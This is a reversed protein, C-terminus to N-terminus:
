CRVTATEAKVIIGQLTKFWGELLYSWICGIKTLRNKNFLLVLDLWFINCVTATFGGTTPHYFHLDVKKEEFIQMKNVMQESNLHVATVLVQKDQERWISKETETNLGRKGRTEEETDAPSSSDSEEELVCGSALRCRPSRRRRRGGAASSFPPPPAWGAVSCRPLFHTCVCVCM